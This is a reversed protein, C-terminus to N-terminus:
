WMDCRSKPSSSGECRFANAFESSHRAMVNCRHHSGRAAGHADGCTALCRGVFFLQDGSLNEFGRLSRGGEAAKKYARFLSHAGVSVGPRTENVVPTARQGSSKSPRRRAHLSKGIGDCHYNSEFLRRERTSWEIRSGHADSDFNGRDFAQMMSEVLLSGLLGYNLETSGLYNFLPWIMVAAPVSVTNPASYAVRPSDGTFDYKTPDKEHGLMSFFRHMRARRSDLYDTVFTGTPAPHLSYFRDVGAWNSLGTPYGLKWRMRKVKSELKARQREPIWYSYQISQQVEETIGAVM